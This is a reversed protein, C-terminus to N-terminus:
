QRQMRTELIKKWISRNTCQLRRLFMELQQSDMLGYGRYPQPFLFPFDTQTLLFRDTLPVGILSSLTGINKAMKVMNTSTLSRLEELAKVSSKLESVNKLNKSIPINFYM